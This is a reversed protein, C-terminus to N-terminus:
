EVTELNRLQIEIDEAESSLREWEEWLGTSRNKLDQYKTGLQEVQKTGNLQEPNSFLTEMHTLENQNILLTDDINEILGGLIRARTKLTRRIRDRSNRPTDYHGKTPRIKSSNTESNNRGETKESSHSRAATNNQQKAYMFSNYDGSFVTAKGNQIEIIKNAIQRIVTRDHTIFCITGQYDSLADTLVERSEIDLHNTPEDMFLLNSPQVLLKALAVRAKEGGSLVSITKRVNDGSFLFGGLINRLNQQSEQPAVQQLEAILDNQPNLLDLLHQSYYVPIVNHGTTREGDDCSIVGSLIKLLTSKGAGNPGVLAIRDGRELTLNLGDYVKHDGYAKSVNKLTILKLGSRPPQPFTYHVKKTIRPLVIPELKQLQKLRSQVQSAKRAKSRFRDVFRMQREIERKQRAASAVTNTISREKAVIYGDYNGKFKVLKGPEIALVMTAVQNLFARDHSTFVIAGKFSLLFNGFWINSNLDLHNTPEDLLLLDPNRFLIKGLAVRMIMGGSFERLPKSFDHQGFGLGSLIEKAEHERPTDTIDDLYSSLENIRRLLMNQSSQERTSVLDKYYGSIKDQLINVEDPEELIEQIPTTKSNWVIDQKLYGFKMAPSRSINGSDPGTLGALINLLTTKGSGNSGILAIRQGTVINLTLDSFLNHEGYSKSINSTSLM